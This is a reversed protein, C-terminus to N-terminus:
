NIIKFVFPVFTRLTMIELVYTANPLSYTHTISNSSLCKHAFHWTYLYNGSNGASPLYHPAPFEM